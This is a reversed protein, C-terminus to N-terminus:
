LHGHCSKDFKVLANRASVKRQLALRDPVIVFDPQEAIPVSGIAKLLNKKVTSPAPSDYAWLVFLSTSIRQDERIKLFKKELTKFRRCKAVSDTIDSPSLKTKVEVLAYASEAPWLRNPQSTHLPANSLGDLVLIDAQKSFQGSPTILFGTDVIFRKPLHEVLFDKVLQERNAGASPRHIAFDRRIMKSRLRMEKAVDSFYDPFIMDETM